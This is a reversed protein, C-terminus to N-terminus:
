IMVSNAANEIDIPNSLQRIYAEYPKIKPDIYLDYLNINARDIPRVGGSGGNSEEFEAGCKDPFETITGGPVDKIRQLEAVPLGISFNERMAAGGFIVDKNLHIMLILFALTMIISLQLDVFTSAVIIVLLLVKWGIQNMFTLYKYNIFPSLLIYLFFAVKATLLINKETLNGTFKGMKNYLYTKIKNYILFIQFGSLCIVV